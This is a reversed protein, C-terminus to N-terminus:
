ITIENKLTVDSQLWKVNDIESAIEKISKLGFFEKLPISVEFDRKIRKLLVMAKLSDGGLEFFNDEQGIEEIGFFEELLACLQTEVETEPAVYQSKLHARSRKAIQSQEGDVSDQSGEEELSFARDIRSQLDVVTESICRVKNLGTSWEFLEFIEQPVLASRQGSKLEQEIREEDFLMESLAACKWNELGPLGSYLFQEMFLNASSYATFSLGAIVSALSSTMWVFDPQNDKLLSYLNLTGNVKADMVRITKEATTDAIFEYDSFQINGAAHIVGDIRGFRSRISDLAAKLQDLNTVDAQEYHVTGIQQLGALRKLWTETQKATPDFDAPLKKRGSVIVNADYKELLGKALVYGVNGLGGTILYTGGKKIKTVTENVALKNQQFDRGLVDGNRIALINEENAGALITNLVDISEKNWEDADINRSAIRYEQPIVNNMGLVISQNYDMKDTALVKHANKTLISVQPNSVIKLQTLKGLIAALDFYLRQMSADDKSLSFSKGAADLSWAYVIDTFTYDTQSLDKALQELEEPQNPNVSYNQDDARLYGTGRKVNIFTHGSDKLDESFHDDPAFFLVVKKEKQIEPLMLVEAEQKWIPFYLWDKLEIGQPVVNASGFGDMMGDEFIDVEAPFKQHEFVYTPLSIRNRKETYLSEFDLTANNSWLQGLQEIFFQYDNVEDKISRVTNKTIHKADKPVIQSLLSCM